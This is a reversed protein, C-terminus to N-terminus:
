PQAEMAEAKEELEAATDFLHRNRVLKAAERWVEARIENAKFAIAKEVTEIAPAEHEALATRIAREFTEAIGYFEEDDLVNNGFEERTADQAIERIREDTM